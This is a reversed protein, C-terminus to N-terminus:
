LWPGGGSGGSLLFPREECSSLGREISSRHDRIICVGGLFQNYKGCRAVLASILEPMERCDLVLDM